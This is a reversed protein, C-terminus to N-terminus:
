KQRVARDPRRSHQTAAARCVRVSTLLGRGTAPNQSGTQRGTGCMSMTSRGEAQRSGVTSQVTGRTGAREMITDLRCQAVLRRVVSTLASTKTCCLLVRILGRRQLVNEITMSPQREVAHPKSGIHAAFSLRGPKGAGRGNVACIRVCAHEFVLGRSHCGTQHTCGDPCLKSTRARCGLQQFDFRHHLANSVSTM